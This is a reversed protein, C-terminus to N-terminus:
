PGAQWITLRDFQISFRYSYAWGPVIDTPIGKCSCLAKQSTTATGDNYVVLYGVQGSVGAVGNLTYTGALADQMAQIQAVVDSYAANGTLGAAAIVLVEFQMSTDDYPAPSLGHQRYPYPQGTLALDKVYSNLAKQVATTKTPDFTIAAGFSKLGGLPTGM